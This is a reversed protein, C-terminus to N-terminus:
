AVAGEAAEPAGPAPTRRWRRRVALLGLVALVVAPVAFPLVTLMTTRGVVFAASAGVGVQILTSPLSGVATGLLYPRLRVGTLGAGYSLAFFPVVPILRGTLVSLFGRDAMVQDVHTLRPGALRTAASRGLARSLGFAVLAGLMAGAVGIALGPGFGAVVGLVVTTASRPVPTLLVLALGATMAIWGLAGAAHFWSRLEAVEPLDMTLTLVVGLVLFLALAAARVWTNGLAKRVGGHQTIASARRVPVGRAGIASASSGPEEEM